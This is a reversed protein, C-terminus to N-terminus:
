FTRGCETFYKSFCDGPVEMAKDIEEEEETEEAERQVEAM